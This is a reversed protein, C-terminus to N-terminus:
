EGGGQVVRSVRWCGRGWLEHGHTMCTLEKAGGKGISNKVEGQRNQASRNQKNGTSKRGDEGEGEAIIIRWTIEM